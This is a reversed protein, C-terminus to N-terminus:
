FELYELLLDFLGLMGLSNLKDFNEIVFDKESESLNKLEEAVNALRESILSLEKRTELSLEQEDYKESM